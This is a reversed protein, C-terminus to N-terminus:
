GHVAEQIWRWVAECGRGSRASFPLPQIEGLSLLIERTRGLRSELRSSSLKDTKTAVVLFPKQVHLLWRLMDLDQATPDHRADLLQVTGRLLKRKKLYSNVLDAWQQREGPSRRAYGYGPLDVLYFASNVRYYNLTRTKGPTNSTKALNKRNILRNILSSKGVNSRGAFAIEPLTQAPIQSPHGVSTVFEASHLKM